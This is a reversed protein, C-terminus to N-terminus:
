QREPSEQGDTVSADDFFPGHWWRASDGFVAGGIADDALAGIATALTEAVDILLASEAADSQNCQLWSLVEWLTHMRGAVTELVAALQARSLEQNRKM